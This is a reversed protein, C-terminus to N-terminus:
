TPPALACGTAIIIIFIAPRVHYAHELILVPRALIAANGACVASVM